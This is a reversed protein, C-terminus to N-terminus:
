AVKYGGTSSVEGQWCGHCSALSALKHPVFICTLTWRSFKMPSCTCKSTMGLAQDVPFFKTCGDPLSLRGSLDSVLPVGFRHPARSSEKVTNMIEYACLALDAFGRILTAGESVIGTTLFFM